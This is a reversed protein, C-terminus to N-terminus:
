LFAGAGSRTREGRSGRKGPVHDFPDETGPVIKRKASLAEYEVSLIRLEYLPDAELLFWRAVEWSQWQDWDRDEPM